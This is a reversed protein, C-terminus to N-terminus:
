LCVSFSSGEPFSLYRKPRSLLRQQQLSLSSSPLLMPSSLSSSAAQSVPLSFFVNSMRTTSTNTMMVMDTSAEVPIRQTAATTKTRNGVSNGTTSTTPQKTGCTKSGCNTIRTCNEMSLSLLDNDDTDHVRRQLTDSIIQNKGFFKGNFNNIALVDNDDVVHPNNVFVSLLTAFNESAAVNLSRKLKVFDAYIVLIIMFTKILHFSNLKNSLFFLISSSQNNHHAMNCTHCCCNLFNSFKNFAFIVRFPSHKQTNNAQKCKTFNNKFKQSFSCTLGCHVHSREYTGEITEHTACLTSSSICNSLYFRISSLLFHTTFSLTLQQMFVDYIFLGIFTKHFHCSFANHQLKSVYKTAVIHKHRKIAKTNSNEILDNPKITTPTAIKCLSITVCVFVHLCLLELM